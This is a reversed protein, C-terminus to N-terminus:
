CGRRSTGLYKKSAYTPGHTSDPAWDLFLPRDSKSRKTLFKIAEHRLIRTYNSEHTKLDIGFSEYFRNYRYYVKAENLIM